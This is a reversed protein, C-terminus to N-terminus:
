VLLVLWGSDEMESDKKDEIRSWTSSFTSSFFKM